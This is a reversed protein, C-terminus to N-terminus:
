VQSKDSLKQTTDLGGVVWCWWQALTWTALRLSAACESATNPNISGWFPPPCSPCMSRGRTLPGLFACTLGQLPAQMAALWVVGSAPSHGREHAHWVMTESVHAGLGEAGQGKNDPRGMVGETCAEEPLGKEKRRDIGENEMANAETRAAM